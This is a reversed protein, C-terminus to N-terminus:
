LMSFFIFIFQFNSEVISSSASNGAGVRIGTTLDSYALTGRMAFRNNLSYKGSFGVHYSPTSGDGDSHSFTTGLQGGLAFKNFGSQANISTLITLSLIFCSLLKKSM